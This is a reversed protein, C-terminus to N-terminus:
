EGASFYELLISSREVLELVVIDPEYTLIDDFSYANFHRLYTQEFQSGLYPAMATAFSDRIVYLTRPDAEDPANYAILNSFSASVDIIGHDHYGSLVYHHDVGNMQKSLYLMQALDGSTAEGETIALADSALSPMDIGLEQLLAASGVYGGIQNWHSDTKYYIAYGTHAKAEMLAEYPYVVRLDTNKRLYNVIQLVGYEDAPLGYEDPMNECYIREKNPAFYLVFEIGREELVDRFHLCNEAILQLEADTYLNTGQYCALPDGDDKRVYFLWGNKGPLVYDSTSKHFVYYDISSNLSILENRFPIRDDLFSTFQTPFSSYTSLTLEPVEAKQRNEYNTNDALPQVFFWIGWSLCINVVFVIMLIWSGFSKKM